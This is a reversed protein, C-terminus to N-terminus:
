VSLTISEVSFSEDLICRFLKVKAYQKIETDNYVTNLTKANRLKHKRFLSSKAKVKGVHVRLKNDFFWDCLSSFDILLQKEIEIVDKHQLVICIDDTYLLLDSAVAQPLLLDKPCVVYSRQRTSHSTNIVSIFKTWQSLFRQIFDLCHYCLFGSHLIQKYNLEYNM